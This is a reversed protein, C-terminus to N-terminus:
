QMPEKAQVGLPITKSRGLLAIATVGVLAGVVVTYAEMFFINPVFSVRLFTPWFGIPPFGLDLADYHTGWRGRMALYQVIAVPIRSLYGYALLAKALTPWAKASLLLGSLTIIFNMSLRPAYGMRNSEMVFTGALKLALGSFALVMPLAFRRPADGVYFLKVAFYIGFIPVLWIVGLIAKGCVESNVLPKPWHLLEGALRLATVAISIVAPVAILRAISPTKVALRMITEMCIVLYQALAWHWVRSVYDEEYRSLHCTPGVLGSYGPFSQHRYREDEERRAM